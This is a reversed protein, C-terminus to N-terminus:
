PATASPIGCGCPRSRRTALQQGAVVSGRRPRGSSETGNNRVGRCRSSGSSRRASYPGRTTDPRVRGHELAPLKLTAGHGQLHCVSARVIVRDRNWTAPAHASRTRQFWATLEGADLEAVPRQPGLERAMGELVRRYTICSAPTFDDAHLYGAVAAGITDYPIVM